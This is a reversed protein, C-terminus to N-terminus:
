SESIPISRCIPITTPKWYLACSRGCRTKLIPLRHVAPSRRIADFLHHAGTASNPLSGCRIAPRIAFMPDRIGPCRRRIQPSNGPEVMSRRIRCAMTGLPLLKLLRSTVNLRNIESNNLRLGLMEDPEFPNDVYQKTLPYSIVEYPDDGNGQLISNVMLNARQGWGINSSAVATSNNNYMSYQIWRSTGSTLWSLQKANGSSVYSGLGTFDIPHMFFPAAGQGENLNNNDDQLSLGPRPLTQGGTNALTGGTAAAYLLNEEGYVGPYLDQISGGSSYQPRGIKSWTFEMNGTEGWPPNNGSLLTPAAGYFKQHQTFVSGSGDVGYRANLGWIPNVEAPGL